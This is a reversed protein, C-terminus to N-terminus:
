VSPQDPQQEPFTQPVDYEQQFKQFGQWFAKQNKVAARKITDIDKGTQESKRSLYEEIQQRGLLDFHEADIMEIFPDLVVKPPEPLAKQPEPLAEPEFDMVEEPTYLLGGAAPYCKDVGESIVRASLMQRPYNKWNDKGHLGARKADDITWRITLSNPASPHSFV